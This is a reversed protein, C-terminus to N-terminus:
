SGVRRWPGPIFRPTVAAYAPYGPYHAALMSEEWRAKGNFLLVLAVFAVVSWPNGTQAATAAAWVMLGGYIPHRAFRFSGGTRLVGRSVPAPHATLSRGLDLLGWAALGLGVAQVVRLLLRAWEPVSWASGGPLLVLAALLALQVAVLAWGVLRRRDV